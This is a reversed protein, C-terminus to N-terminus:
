CLRVCFRDLVDDGGSRATVEVPHVGPALQLWAPEVLTHIVLPVCSYLAKGACLNAFGPPSVLVYIIGVSLALVIGHKLRVSV